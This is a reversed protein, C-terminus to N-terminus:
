IALLMFDIVKELPLALNGTKQEVELKFLKEFLTKLQTQSFFKSQKELKSKQWPAMKTVEEINETQNEAQLALMLRVQRILMFFVLEAEQTTLVTHFMRLLSQSNNPKLNDLFTFLTKPYSFNKVTAQKFTNLQKLTLEKNELLVISMTAAHKKLLSLVQEKQASDKRKTLLDEIFIAKTENFLSSGEFIEILDTPSLKEGVFSAFHQQKNKEESFYARSRVVDDGHILTIM